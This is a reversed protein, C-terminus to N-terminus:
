RAEKPIENEFLAVKIAAMRSCKELGEKPRDSLGTYECVFVSGDKSVDSRDRQSLLRYVLCRTKPDDSVNALRESVIGKNV